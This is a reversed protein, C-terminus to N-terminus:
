VPECWVDWDFERLKKVEETYTFKPNLSTGIPEMQANETPPANTTNIFCRADAAGVQTSGRMVTVNITWPLHFRPSEFEETWNLDGTSGSTPVGYLTINLLMEYLLSDNRDVSNNAIEGIVTIQQSLNTFTQNILAQTGNVQNITENIKGVWRPNQWEGWAYAFQDGLSCKLRTLYTGEVDVMPATYLYHGPELLEPISTEFIFQTGNPYWASFSANTLTANTTENLFPLDYADLCTGFVSVIEGSEYISGKVKAELLREVVVKAAGFALPGDDGAVVEVLDGYPDYVKVCGALLIAVVLIIAVYKM